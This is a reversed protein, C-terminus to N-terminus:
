RSIWLTIIDSRSFPSGAPPYQRLVLGPTIGPYDVEHIRGLRFRHRDCFRRVLTLQRALLSPMVWLPQAPSRNTLLDIEAEPLVTSDIAPATELVSDAGGQGFVEARRGPKLGVAELTRIAAQPSEGRVSPVQVQEDGLSRRVRVISGTKVHFGPLPNQAAVLGPAVSTSFAGTPDYEVVLGLDHAQSEADQDTLGRLEPVSVTGLHVTYVLSFWGAVGATLFFLGAIILRAIM